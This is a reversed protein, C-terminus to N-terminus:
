TIASVVQLPIDNGERKRKDKKLIHQSLKWLFWGVDQMDEPWRLYQQKQVFERISQHRMLEYPSLSGVVVVILSSRLDSVCRGQACSFAELCWGDRLFHRSVLCVTKRSSYVAAQINTLHNEGPVFDREEFCLNLRNRDSYQMDLHKLLANQAWEFDKGSFCFYADYRYVDSETKQPHNDLVLQQITKYCTFCFERFRTVLIVTMLFLTLTVTSFIFLTFQLSRLSEEEDCGETSLFYLSVGSLSSPYACTIDTGSGLLTVNTHNLWTVLASLECECIFKNHTMDLFSLSAFLAPDPALLQNWSVDLVELTPPLSDPPLNHLRNASLFLGRLSTLDRFVGPPLFNLYNSNLYLVRLHFLGRFIDWCLEAEWALQLMNESLFLKELSLNDSRTDPAACSSLRNKNVILTQLHPVQLLFYLDALNELRNESLEIFNAELHTNPLTALRNGGLFVTPISPIFTLTKLANDRLDLTSLKGLLKFTQDQIIGIHNRQLDIYSVNPLGQFSPNYLEGLLNFSLNLVQLSNLGYFVDGALTNINNYALNLVKLDQLTGFLRSSLFFISGHSLDLIVVSSEALGAFTSQDPDRINQFGFGPGMIHYALNLSSIKSGRIANSFNGTIDASWGNRSVDLTELKLARLPNRCKDWDMQVQIYLNNARLSLFSLTKERLAQLEDECVSLIQNLSFDLSKLSNLEQFSPHLYLSSIKNKSLDLHTLSNLNRFYGDRLVTDSLGCGFLRLEFLNHLGQFAGPHLVAIQSNGLDLIRLNPLNRFAENSITLPTHQTGLELLQLQELFPFSASTVTRIYNYSLLLNRTTNLVQPIETLNCWRFLAIPGYFSCSPIAFMPGAMLVVGILLDLYDAM